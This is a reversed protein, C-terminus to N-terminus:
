GLMPIKLHLPRVELRHDHREMEQPLAVSVAAGESGVVQLRQVMVLPDNVANMHMGCTGFVRLSDEVHWWRHGLAEYLHVVHVSWRVDSSIIAFGPPRDAKKM